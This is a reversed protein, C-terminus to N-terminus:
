NGLYKHYDVAIVGVGSYSLTEYSTPYKNTFIVKKTYKTPDPNVFMERKALGSVYYKRIM